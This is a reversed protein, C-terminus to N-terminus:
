VKGEKKGLFLTAAFFVVAGLVFMALFAVVFPLVLALLFLVLVVVWFFNNLRSIM